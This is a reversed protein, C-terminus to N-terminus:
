SASSPHPRSNDRREDMVIGDPDRLQITEGPALRYMTFTQEALKESELQLGCFAWTSSNYLKSWITYAM